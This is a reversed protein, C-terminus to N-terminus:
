SNDSIGGSYLAENQVIIGDSDFSWALGNTRFQGIVGNSNIYFPSLPKEPLVGVATTVSIGNRNGFLLANQNIGFQKAVEPAISAEKLFAGGPPPSPNWGIVDDSAYPMSFEKVTGNNTQGSIWEIEQISKLADGTLRSSNNRESAPPRREIISGGDKRTSSESGDFTLDTSNALINLIIGAAEGPSVERSAQMARATGQQGQETYCYASRKVSLSRSYQGKVQSNSATIRAIDGASQTVESLDILGYGPIYYDVGSSGFLMFSPNYETTFVSSRTDGENLINSEVLCEEGTGDPDPGDSENNTDILDALTFPIPTPTFLGSGFENTDDYYYNTISLVSDM